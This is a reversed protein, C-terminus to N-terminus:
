RGGRRRVQSMAQGELGLDAFVHERDFYVTLCTVKGGEVYFLDAGPVAISILQHGSTKGRGGVARNLVLVRKDDIARYEEAEVRFDSFASLRARLAQAMGALGRSLGPDPGDAITFEIDPDAWDAWRFDGREWDAFISCVLDLNESMAEERQEALREAATRADDIDTYTSVRVIMREVFAAVVAIRFHVHGTSGALRGRETVVAFVIGAGCDLFEDFTIAWEDYARSWDELLDRIQTRGDFAGMGLASMDWVPHPGFFSLAPEFDRREISDCFGRARELADRTTSEESM